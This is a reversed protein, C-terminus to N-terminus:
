TTLGMLKKLRPNTEVATAPNPPAAPSPNVSPSTPPPKPAAPKAKEGAPKAPEKSKKFKSAADIQSRTENLVQQTGIAAQSCLIGVVEDDSFTFHKAKAAPTLKAYERPSVFQKGDRFREKGGQEAFIRASIDVTNALWVHYENTADLKKIGRRLSIWERVLTKGRNIANLVLEGEIPVEALASLGGESAASKLYDDDPLAALVEKEVDAEAKEIIPRVEIETVKRLKPEIEKEIEARAENKARKAIMDDRLEEHEDREIAPPHAALFRRYEPVPRGSEDILQEDPHEAKWQATFKNVEKMRDIERDLVGQYREPNDAAASRLVDLYRAEARSPAYGLLEAYPKPQSTEEPRDPLLDEKSVPPLPESKKPKPAPLEAAKAPPEEPRSTEEPSPAAEAPKEPSQPTSPDASPDAPKEHPIATPQEPPPADASPTPEEIKPPQPEVPPMADPGLVYKGLSQLFTKKPKDESM